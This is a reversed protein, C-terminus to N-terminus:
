ELKSPPVAPAAGPISTVAPVTPPPPAYNAQNVSAPQSNSAV